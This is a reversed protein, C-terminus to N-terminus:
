RFGGGQPPTDDIYLNGQVRLGWPANMSAADPPEMALGGLLMRQEVDCHIGLAHGWGPLDDRAPPKCDACDISCWLAETGWIETFAKYIRPHQRNNWQSQTQWMNLMTGGGQGDPADSGKGSRMAGGPYTYWTSEDDPDWGLLAMMDRQVADCHADRDEGLINKIVMYGDREWSEWNEASIIPPEEAGAAAAPLAPPPAAPASHPAAALHSAWARLRRLAPM